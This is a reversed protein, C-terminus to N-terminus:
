RFLNIAERGLRPHYAGAPKHPRRVIMIVVCAVQLLRKGALFQQGFDLVNECERVFMLQRVLNWQTNLPSICISLRFTNQSKASVSLKVLAAWILLTVCDATLWCILESSRSNLDNSM